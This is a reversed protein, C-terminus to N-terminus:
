VNESAPKERERERERDREYERCVREHLFFIFIEFDHLSVAVLWQGLPRKREM